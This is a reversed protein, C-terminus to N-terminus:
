TSKPYRSRFAAVEAAADISEMKGKSLSDQDFPVPNDAGPNRATDSAKIAAAIKGGVTEGIRDIAAGILEHGKAKAVDWSGQVLNAATGVAVEGVKAAVTDAAALPNNSKV